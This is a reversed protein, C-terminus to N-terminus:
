MEVRRQQKLRVPGAQTCSQQVRHFPQVLDLLPRWHCPVYTCLGCVACCHVSSFPVSSFQVSGFQGSRVQSSHNVCVEVVRSITCPEQKHKEYSRRASRVCSSIM